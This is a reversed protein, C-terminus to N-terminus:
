KQLLAKEVASRVTAMDVTPEFRALVEGERSVLFKTFNWKIDPKSAYDPDISSLLKDMKEAAPGEGFGEFGKQTCLWVFLDEANPGIVDIKQHQFFETKYTHYCIKRIYLMDEPAQGGFQNCPFDLVEFGEDHYQDYLASLEKYQPTFECHTATNVILLVKGEYISLSHVDGDYDTVKFDYLPSQARLMCVFCLAFALIAALRKM